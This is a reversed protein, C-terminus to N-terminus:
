FQCLDEIVSLSFSQFVSLSFSQFVSAMIFLWWSIIIRDVTVTSLANLINHQTRHIMGVISLTMSPKPKYQRTSAHSLSIRHQSINCSYLMVSTGAAICVIDFCLCITSSFISSERIGHSLLFFCLIDSHNCTINVHRAYCSM